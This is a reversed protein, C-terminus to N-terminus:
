GPPTRFRPHLVSFYRSVFGERAVACTLRSAGYLSPKFTALAATFGTIPM